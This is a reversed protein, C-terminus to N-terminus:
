RRVVGNYVMARVYIAAVKRLGDLAEFVQGSVPESPNDAWADEVKREYRRALTLFGPVDKAEDNTRRPLADQYQLEGWLADMAEDFDQRTVEDQKTTKIM